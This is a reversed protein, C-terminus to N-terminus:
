MVKLKESNPCKFSHKISLGGEVRGGHVGEGGGGGVVAPLRGAGHLRVLRVRYIESSTINNNTWSKIFFLYIKIIGPPRSM